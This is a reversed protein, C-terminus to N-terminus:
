LLDPGDTANRPQRSLVALLPAAAARVRALAEDHGGDLPNAGHAGGRPAEGQGLGALERALVAALGQAQELFHRPVDAEILVPAALLLMTMYTRLEDSAAERDGSGDRAAAMADSTRAAQRVVIVAQAATARSRDQVQRLRVVQNVVLVTVLVVLVGSVTDTTLARQAWWRRVGVDTLDLGVLAATLATVAVAALGDRWRRLMRPV